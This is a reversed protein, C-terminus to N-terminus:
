LCKRTIRDILYLFKLYLLQWRRPLFWDTKRFSRLEEQLYPMRDFSQLTQLFQKRDEFYQGVLITKLVYRHYRIKKDLIRQQAANFLGYNKKCVYLGAIYMGATDKSHSTQHNRILTIGEQRQDYYYVPNDSSSRLWLDWDENYNICNDFFGSRKLCETKSIICSIAFLNGHVLKNRVEEAGIVCSPFEESFRRLDYLLAPDERFFAYDTFVFDVAHDALVEAAQQLKQSAIVDDADLFLIYDGTIRDLAYNRAPSPGKNDALRHYSFRSDAARYSEVVSATQDISANDVVLCEWDAYSQKVVSDLCAGILHGYNFSPIVISFKMSWIKRPVQEMLRAQM